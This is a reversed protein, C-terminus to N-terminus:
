PCSVSRCNGVGKRCLENPSEIRPYIASIQFAKGLFLQDFQHQPHLPRVLGRALGRFRRRGVPFLLPFVGLGAPGLRSMFAMGRTSRRVRVGDLIMRRCLAGTAPQRRAPHRAPASRRIRRSRVAASGATRAVADASNSGSCRQPLAVFAISGGAPEARREPRADMRHRDIQLAQM